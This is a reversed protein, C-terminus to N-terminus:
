EFLYQLILNDYPFWAYSYAAFKLWVIYVTAFYMVVLITTLKVSVKHQLLFPLRSFVVIQIPIFYLAIRDVATSAYGVAFVSVVSGLAIVYWFGYDKYQAKWETRFGLFILAPIFNMFARIYAGSSQMQNEIYLKVYRDEEGSLFATYIGIGVIIIALIKFLKGKGQQFLGLGIMLVASKHFAAALIVLLVFRIFHRNALMAIAWFILGLAIGQRTYAISVVVITYAIAITLGLWPNPQQRLFVILGTMFITAGVLNVGYIGWDLEHMGVMLLWFAPDDHELAERYSMNYALLEFMDWYNNWDAGVEHRFGIFLAYLIGVTIWPLVAKHKRAIPRAISMTAPFIFALFYHIM